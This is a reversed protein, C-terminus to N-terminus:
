NTFIWIRKAKVFPTIKKLFEVKDCYEHIKYLQYQKSVESYLLYYLGINLKWNDLNLTRHEKDKIIRKVLLMVDRAKTVLITNEPLEDYYEFGHKDFKVKNM